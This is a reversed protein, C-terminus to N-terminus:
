IYMYVCVCVHTPKNNINCIYIYIYIYICMAGSPTSSEMMRSTETSAITPIVDLISDYVHLVIMYNYIYM